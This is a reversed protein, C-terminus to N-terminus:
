IIMAVILSILDLPCTTRVEDSLAAGLPYRHLALLRAPLVRPLRFASIPALFLLFSVLPAM